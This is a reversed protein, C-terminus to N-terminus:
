NSKTVRFIFTEETVNGWTDIVRLKITYDGEVGTNLVSYQGKPVYVFPTLDGNRDDSARFRPFINQDFPQGWTVIIIREAAPKDAISAPSIFTIVPAETDMAIEISAKLNQEAIRVPAAYKTAPPTIDAWAEVVDDLTISEVNNPIVLPRNSAVFEESAWAGRTWKYEFTTYAETVEVIFSLTYVLTTGVQTASYAVQGPNWGNVNGAISMVADVPTNAPVTVNLTVTVEKAEALAEEPHNLNFFVEYDKTNDLDDELIVVFSNLTANTTAFDVREIALPDGYTDVGTVERVSFWSEITARAADKDVANPYPSTIQASTKVIITNPDTAYTGSMEEPNFAMLKFTFALDIFAAFDNYFVNDNATYADGKSVVYAVGVDGPDTAGSASLNLNGTKKNADGGAYILLGPDADVASLMIGKVKNGNQVQGANIMPVPTGWEAATADWGWHHVGINEEYTGSPDYYVVLLNAATRSAVFHGPDTETTVAGQFVYVHTTEGAAIVAPDIKVDGTLKADWNPGEGVWYVAIFGIDDVDVTIDNYTWYAGFEDVGDKLKGAIGVAGWAWSGLSEYNEDWAKFHVVLNGTTAAFSRTGLFGIASVLLLLALLVKKM